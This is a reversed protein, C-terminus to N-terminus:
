VLFYFGLLSLFGACALQIRLGINVCHIIYQKTIGVGFNRNIGITPIYVRDKFLKYKIFITLQKRYTVNPMSLQLFIESTLVNQKPNPVRKHVSLFPFKSLQISNVLSYLM